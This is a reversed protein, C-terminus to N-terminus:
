RYWIRLGVQVDNFQISALDAVAEDWQLNYTDDGDVTASVDIDGIFVDGGERTSAALSFMDDLLNIADIWASPTDDRIQIEQAGSLKNAGANTNEVARFKFMVVARVVVAGAPLSVVIDPLAQDAAVAPIALEEQPNSWFDLPSVQRNLNDLYGARAATLRDWLTDLWSM